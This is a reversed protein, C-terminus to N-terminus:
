VIIYLFLRVLLHFIFSLFSSGEGSKYGAALLMQSDPSFELRDVQSLEQCPFVSLLKSSESSWLSIRPPSCTAMMRGCGSVVCGTSTTLVSSFNM